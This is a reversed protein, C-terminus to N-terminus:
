PQVTGLSQTRELLPQASLNIIKTVQNSLNIEIHVRNGKAVQEQKLINSDTVPLTWMQGDKTQFTITQRNEDIGVIAGTFITAAESAFVMAVTACLLCIMAIAIKITKM